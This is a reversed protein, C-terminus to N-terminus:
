CFYYYMHDRNAQQMQLTNTDFYHHFCPQKYHEINLVYQLQNQLIQYNLCLQLAFKDNTSAFQTTNGMPLLFTAYGNISAANNHINIYQM